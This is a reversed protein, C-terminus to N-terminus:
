FLCYMFVHMDNIEVRDPKFSFAQPISYLYSLILLHIFGTYIDHCGLFGTFVKLREQKEVQFLEIEPSYALLEYMM